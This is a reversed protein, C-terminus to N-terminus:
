GRAYVYNIVRRMEIDKRKEGYFYVFPPDISSFAYSNCFTSLHERSIRYFFGTRIFLRNKNIFFVFLDNFNSYQLCTACINCVTIM